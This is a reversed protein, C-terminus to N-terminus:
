IGLCSSRFISGCLVRLTKLWSHNVFSAEFFENQPKGLKHTLYKNLRIYLLCKDSRLIAATMRQKQQFKVAVVVAANTPVLRLV